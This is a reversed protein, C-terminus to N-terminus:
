NKILYLMYLKTNIFSFFIIFNWELLKEIKWFPENQMFGTHIEIDKTAMFSFYARHYWGDNKYEIESYRDKKHEQYWKPHALKLLEVIPVFKLGNHSIEKTLDSLPRIVIKCNENLGIFENYDNFYNQHSIIVVNGFANVAKLGNFYFSLHKLELKMEKTTKGQPCFSGGVYPKANNPSSPDQEVTNSSDAVTRVQSTSNQM